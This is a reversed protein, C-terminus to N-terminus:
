DSSRAQKKTKIKNELIKMRLMNKEICYMDKTRHYVPSTGYKTNQSSIDVLLYFKM